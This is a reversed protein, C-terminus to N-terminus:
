SKLPNGLFASPLGRFPCTCSARRAQEAGPPSSHFGPAQSLQLGPGRLSSGWSPPGEPCSVKPSRFCHHPPPQKGPLGMQLVGSAREQPEQSLPEPPWHPPPQAWRRPSAVPVGSVRWTGLLLALFTFPPRRTAGRCSM